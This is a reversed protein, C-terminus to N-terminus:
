FPQPGWGDFGAAVVFDTDRADHYLSLLVADDDTGRLGDTMRRWAAASEDSGGAHEASVDYLWVPPLSRPGQRWIAPHSGYRAHLYRLDSLVSQATRGGYPEM